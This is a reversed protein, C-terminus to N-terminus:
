DEADGILIFPAWFYPNGYKQNQRIESKALRMAELKSKGQYINKFFSKVFVDACESHVNWLTMIVSKAGAYQFARGISMVGEGPLWEGIGTECAMLAVLDTNLLKLGMIETMTFDLDVRGQSHRPRIVLHPEAPADQAKIKNRPQLQAQDCPCGAARPLHYEGYADAVGHTSFVIRRYPRYDNELLDYKDVIDYTYTLDPKLNQLAIVDQKMWEEPYAICLTKEGIERNTGLTRALTLATASQSYSVKNRDALFKPEKGKEPSEVLLAEFPIMSVAEDGVIIMHAGEPIWKLADGLLIDALKIEAESDQRLPLHCFFCDVLRALDDKNVDKFFGKQFSRGKTLFIMTGFDSVEYSLLWEHDNLKMDRLAMPEPYRTAALLPYDAELTKLNTTLLAEADQISMSLGRVLENKAREYAQERKLKLDSLEANLMAVQGLITGPGTIGSEQIKSSIAEAFARAKTFDSYEFAEIQKNQKLLVRSLGKYPTARLFGGVKSRFFNTREGSGLGSRLNEAQVVVKRYYDEAGAYEELAEHILGLGTQAAFLGNASGTQESTILLQEYHRKAREYDAKILYLRGLPGNNGLKKLFREAQDMQDNYEATKGAKKAFEAKDLYLYGLYLEPWRTHFGIDNFTTIAAELDNQARSYDGRNYQTRGMNALTQGVWRLAKLDSFLGLAQEYAELAKGYEGYGQYLHGLNFQASAERFPDASKRAVEMAQEYYRKADRFRGWTNYVNGLQILAMPEVESLQFERAVRLSERFFQAATSYLGLQFFIAGATGLAEGEGSPIGLKRWLALALDISELAPSPMSLENYVLAQISLSAAEVRQDPIKKSLEVLKKSYELAVTYKGREYYMNELTALLGWELKPDSYKGAVDVAKKYQEEAKSHFGWHEYVQGLRLCANAETKPDGQARANAVDKENIEILNSYNQELVSLNNTAMTEIKTLRNKKAIELTKHFCELAKAPQDLNTYISGMYNLCTGETDPCSYIRSANIARNLYNLAISYISRDKSDRAWDKYVLGLNALITPTMDPRMLKYYIDLTQDLYKVADSYQHSNYYSKALAEAATATGQHLGENEFILIAEKFKEIAAKRAEDSRANEELDLAENLISLGNCHKIKNVGAGDRGIDNQSMLTEENSTLPGYKNIPGLSEAVEVFIFLFGMLSSVILLGAIRKM